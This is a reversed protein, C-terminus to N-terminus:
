CSGVSVISGDDCCAETASNFTKGNPNTACCTRVASDYPFRKPYSGCCSDAQTGGGTCTTDYDLTYLQNNKNGWMTFDFSADSWMAGLNMAFEADCKCLDQKFQDNNGSCDISNDGLLEWRYKGINQDWESSFSSVGYDKEICRHCRSLVRCLQDRDDLAPGAGGAVRMNNPFCHCGYNQLRKGVQKETWATNGALQSNVMRIIHSFKKEGTDDQSKVLTATSLICLSIVKQM